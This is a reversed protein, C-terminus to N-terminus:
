REHLVSALVTERDCRSELNKFGLGINGARNVVAQTKHFCILHQLINKHYFRYNIRSPPTYITIRDM